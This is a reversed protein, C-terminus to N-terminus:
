ISQRYAMRSGAGTLERAVVTEIGCQICYLSSCELIWFVRNMLRSSVRLTTISNTADIWVKRTLLRGMADYTMETVADDNSAAGGPNAKVTTKRINGRNDFETTSHTLLTNTSSYRKTATVRGMADHTFTTYDGLADTVKDRRGFGDYHYTTTHSEGDTVTLDRGM